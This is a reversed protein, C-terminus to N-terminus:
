TTRTRAQSNLRRNWNQQVTRGLENMSGKKRPIKGPFFLFVIIRDESYQNSHYKTKRRKESGVIGAFVRFINRRFSSFHFIFLSKSQVPYKKPKITGIEGLFFPFRLM